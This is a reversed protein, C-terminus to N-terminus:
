PARQPPQPTPGSGPAGGEPQPPQPAGEAKDGSVLFDALNGIFAENDAVYANEANLFDTDGVATVNGTQAALAYEGGNRTTSLTTGELGQLTTADDPAVLPAAERFVVRDVGETLDGSGAPTAYVSKYNNQNEQLNYVYGSRFALGFTSGIASDVNNVQEVRTILLGGMGQSQAPQSLLLVRGGAREFAEVGALQEGTYRQRPNAVLYADASRLSENLDRDQRTFFRGEHGNEVLTNVLPQIDSESIGNEHGVDVLVTKSEADADMTISGSGDDTSPLANAPDDAAFTPVPRRCESYVSTREAADVFRSDLGAKGAFERSRDDAVSQGVGFQFRVPRSEIQVVRADVVRDDEESDRVQAVDCLGLSVSCVRELADVQVGREVFEVERGPRDVEDTFLCSRLTQPLERSSSM